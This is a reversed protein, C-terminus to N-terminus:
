GEGLVSKIMKESGLADLIRCGEKITGQGSCLNHLEQLANKIKKLANIKSEVIMMKDAARQKITQCGTTSDAHLDLLESIEKLAFGLEQANKIFRVRLAMEPAYQRYGSATRKPEPILGRREYFRVTTLNVGTIKALQGIRM